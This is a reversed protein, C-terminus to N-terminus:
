APGGRSLGASVPGRVRLPPQGGRLGPRRLVSRPSFTQCLSQAGRTRVRARLQVDRGRIGSVSVRLAGGRVFRRGGTSRRRPPTAAFCATASPGVSCARTPPSFATTSTSPFNRSRRSSSASSANARFGSGCGPNLAHLGEIILVENEALAMPITRHGDRRGSVFDFVPGDIKEGAILRYLHENFLPLDLAEVHEFDFNGDPHRPTDERDRYYNDMAITVPKLGEVRLFTSLQRSFTTKGSSSPGAICILRIRDRREAIKESIDFIRKRFLTESAAILDGIQGRVCADILQSVNSVGLIEHERRAQMFTDFLKPQDSRPRERKSGDINPFRLVFGHRHPEMDFNLIPGTSPALPGRLLDHFGLLEAMWVHGRPIQRVWNAKDAQGLAELIEIAEDVFVRKFEIRINDTVIETMRAALKEVVAPTVNEGRLEFFYGGHISQGIM